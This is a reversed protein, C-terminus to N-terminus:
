EPVESGGGAGVSAAIRVQVAVLLVWRAWSRLKKEQPAPTLPPGLERTESGLAHSLAARASWGSALGRAGSELPRSPTTSWGDALLRFDVQSAVREPLRM